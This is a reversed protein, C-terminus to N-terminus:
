MKSEVGWRVVGDIPVRSNMWINTNVENHYVSHHWDCTDVTSKDFEFLFKFTAAALALSSANIRSQHNSTKNAGTM